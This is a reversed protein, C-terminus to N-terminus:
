MICKFIIPYICQQSHFCCLHSDLFQDKEFFNGNQDIPFSTKSLFYTDEANRVLEMIDRVFLLRPGERLGKIYVNLGCFYYFSLFEQLFAPSPTRVPLQSSQIFTSCMSACDAFSSVLLRLLNRSRTFFSYRSSGQTSILCDPALIHCPNTKKSCLDSIVSCNSLIWLSIVSRLFSCLFLAFLLHTASITMSSCSFWIYSM